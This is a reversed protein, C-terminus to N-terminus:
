RPSSTHRLFLLLFFVHFPYGKLVGPLYDRCFLVPFDTSRCINCFDPSVSVPHQQFLHYIPSIPTKLWLACGVFYIINPRSQKVWGVHKKTFIHALFSVHPLHLFPSFYAISSLSIFSLFHKSSFYSPNYFLNHPKNCQM